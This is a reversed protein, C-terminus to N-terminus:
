LTAKRKDDLFTFRDLEVHFEALKLVTNGNNDPESLLDPWKEGCRAIFRWVNFRWHSNKYSKPLGKTFLLLANEGDKNKVRMDIGPNKSLMYCVVFWSNSKLLYHAIGNGLNDKSDIDLEGFRANFQELFYLQGHSLANMRMTRGDNGCSLELSLCLPEVNKNKSQFLKSRLKLKREPKSSEKKKGNRAKQWPRRKSKKIPPSMIDYLTCFARWSGYTSCNFLPTFGDASKANKDLEYTDILPKILHANPCFVADHLFSEKNKKFTLYKMVFSDGYKELIKKQGGMLAYHLFTREDCDESKELTSNMKFLRELREIDGYFSAFHVQTQKTYKSAQTPSQNKHQELYDCIQFHGFRAATMFLNYVVTNAFKLKAFKSYHKFLTLHGGAVLPYLINESTLSRLYFCKSVDFKLVKIFHTLTAEDGGWAAHFLITYRNKKLYEEDIYSNDLLYDISGKHGGFMLYDIVSKGNVDTATLLEDKLNKILWEHDGCMAALPWCVSEPMKGLERFLEPASISLRQLLDYKLKVGKREASLMLHTPVRAAFLHMHRIWGPKTKYDRFLMLGAKCSRAFRSLDAVSLSKFIVSWVDKNLQVGHLTPLKIDNGLILPKIDKSQLTDTTKRM